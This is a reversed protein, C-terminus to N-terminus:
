TTNNVLSRLHKQYVCYQGQYTTAAILAIAENRNGFVSLKHQSSTPVDTLEAIKVLQPRVGLNSLKVELLFLHSSGSQSGLAVVVQGDTAIKLIRFGEFQPYVIDSLLREAGRCKLHFIHQAQQVVIVESEAEDTESQYSVM